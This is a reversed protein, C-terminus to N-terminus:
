YLLCAILKQYYGLYHRQLAEQPDCVTGHMNCSESQPPETNVKNNWNHASLGSFNLGSM